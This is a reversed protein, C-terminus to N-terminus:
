GIKTGSTHKTSLRKRIGSVRWMLMQFGTVSALGAVAQRTTGFPRRSFRLGPSYAAPAEKMDRIAPPSPPVRCQFVHISPIGGCLRAPAFRHM